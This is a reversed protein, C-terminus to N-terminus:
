NPLCPKSSSTQIDLYPLSLAPVIYQPQCATLKTVLATDAAARWHPRADWTVCDECQFKIIVVCANEYCTRATACPQQPSFNLYSGDVHMHCSAWPWCYGKRLQELPIGQNTYQIAPQHLPIISLRESYICGKASTLSLDLTCCCFIQRCNCRASYSALM